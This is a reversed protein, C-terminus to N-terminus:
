AFVSIFAGSVALLVGFVQQKLGGVAALELKSSLHNLKNTNTIVSKSLETHVQAVRANVAQIDENIHQRLEDLQRELEAIKEEVTKNAHRVLIRGSASTSAKASGSLSIKVTKQFLPFSKIWECIVSGFHQERFLGLNANISYLVILSGMIQLVTSAVKNVMITETPFMQHAFVYVFAIPVIALAPWARLLWYMIASIFHVM